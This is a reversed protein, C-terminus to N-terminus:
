TKKIRVVFWLLIRQLMRLLPLSIGVFVHSRLILIEKTVLKHSEVLILIILRACPELLLTQQKTFQGPATLAQSVVYVTAFVVTVM